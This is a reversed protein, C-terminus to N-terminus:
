FLSIVAFAEKETPSWKQQRNCLSGLTYAIPKLDDPSDVAQTHVGSYVYYSVNTFLTYPREANPYHLIPEKCLVKRLHELAAQQM